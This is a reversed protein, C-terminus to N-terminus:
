PLDDLSVAYVQDGRDAGNQNGGSISHWGESSEEYLAYRRLRSRLGNLLADQEGAGMAQWREKTLTGFQSRYPLGDLYEPLLAGLEGKVPAGDHGLSSPDRASAAFAFQLRKFFTDPKIQSAEGVELIKQIINGLNSLENRTILLTPELAPHSSVPDEAPVYGQVFPPLAANDRQGLYVLRMSQGVIAMRNDQSNAGNESGNRGAQHQDENISKAQQVIDNSLKDVLQRFSGTLERTKGDGVPYYLSTTNPFKSLARYQKEASDLDGVKAAAPTRLHVVFIAANKERALKAYDDVDQKTASAPRKSNAAHERAGADTILVIYRGQIAQWDIAEFATKIGLLPDEDFSKSSAKTEDASAIKQVINDAAQSFDPAGYLKARYGLGPVNDADRFGVLGFRFNQGVSSGTIQSVINRIAEKTQQIYPGMSKTTDVVFVLGAKFSLSQPKSSPQDALTGAAVQMMTVGSWDAASNDASLIPMLYFQHRQDIWAEPEVAIVSPDPQHNQVKALLSKTASGPDSGNLLAEESARDKLFVSRSRGALPAFRANLRHNWPLTQDEKIWGEQRWGNSASKDKVGIQFGGHGSAFVFYEEFGNVTKSHGANDIIQAGPKTLIRQYLTKKGPQHLPQTGDDPIASANDKKSAQADPCFVASVTLAFMFATGFKLLFDNPFVFLSKM